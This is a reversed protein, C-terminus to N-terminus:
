LRPTLDLRAVVELARLVFEPELRVLDDHEAGVVHLALRDDVDELRTQVLAAYRELRERVALDLLRGAPREVLLDRELLLDRDILRPLDDAEDLVRLELH